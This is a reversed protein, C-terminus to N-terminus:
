DGPLIAKEAQTGDFVVVCPLDPKPMRCVDCVEDGLFNPNKCWRCLWRMEALRTIKQEFARIGNQYDRWVHNKM